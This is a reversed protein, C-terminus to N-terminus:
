RSATPRTREKCLLRRGLEIAPREIFYFSCTAVLLACAINFPFVSLRGLPLIDRAPRYLFLQQWVYLSYSITGIWVLPKSSLWKRSLGEDVVLITAIAIAILIYTTLTPEANSRLTNFFILLACFLPLEKPFNRFIFATIAPYTLLIALACGVLLGDFVFETRMMKFHLAAYDYHLYQYLRCSACAIIGIAASILARSKKTFLFITPWLLYFHEEVSLSWFHSTYVGARPHAAEMYNRFFLISSFVEKPSFDSLHVDYAM